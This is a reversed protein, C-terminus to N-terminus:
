GYFFSVFESQRVFFHHRVSVNRTLNRRLLSALRAEFKLSLMIIYATKFLTSIEELTELFRLCGRRPLRCSRRLNVYKIILM